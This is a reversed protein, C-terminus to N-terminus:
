FRVEFKLPTFTVGENTSATVSMLQLFVPVHLLQLEAKASAEAGLEASATSTAKLTDVSARIEAKVEAGLKLKLTGINLKLKHKKTFKDVADPMLNLTASVSYEEKGGPLFFKNGTEFSLEPLFPCEVEASLDGKSNAKYKPSKDEVLSARVRIEAEMIQPGLFSFQPFIVGARNGWALVMSRVDSVPLGKAYYCDRFTARLQEGVTRGNRGNLDLWDAVMARQDVLVSPASGDPRQAPTDPERQLM